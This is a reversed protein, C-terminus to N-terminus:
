AATQYIALDATGGGIDLLAVGLQREDQSLVSYASALPELIIDDVYIGAVEACTVLNQVSTVAGLIIHARVELRIGFMARPDQLVQGDLVFYQPLVHLVQYGEPLTIAQAAELVYAIDSARVQGTKVAVIGHSHLSRIHAGSIGISARTIAVGAVKQAEQVAMKISQVTKAVNVVVGKQLGDSPVKSTALIEVNHLDVQHAVMVCIKTTGVDISVSVKEKM